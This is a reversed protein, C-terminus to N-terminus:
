RRFGLRRRCRAPRDLEEHLLLPRDAHLERLGLGRYKSPLDRRRPADNWGRAPLRDDRRRDGTEDRTGRQRADALGDGATLRDRRETVHRRRRLRRLDLGAPDLLYAENHFAPAGDLCDSRGFSAQVLSTPFEVPRLLQVLVPCDCLTLELRGFDIHAHGLRCVRRGHGLAVRQM